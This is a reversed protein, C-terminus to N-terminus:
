EIEKTAQKVAYIYQYTGCLLSQFDRELLHMEREIERLETPTHNVGRQTLVSLEGLRKAVDKYASPLDVVV